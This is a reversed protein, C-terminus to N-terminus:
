NEPRQENRRSRARTPETSAGYGAEEFAKAAQAIEEDTAPRIEVVRVRYHLRMGALPHNADVVVTKDKVMVVRVAIDDYGPASAVFEDGEKVTTLEPFDARNIELVLEGDHEGFAKEPPVVISKENGIGLGTLAAELGPVLMGYGHVYVIPRGDITNSADLIKGDDGRLTYDLVVRANSQIKNM